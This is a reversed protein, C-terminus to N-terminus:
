CKSNLVILTEGDPVHNDGLAAKSLKARRKPSRYLGINKLM